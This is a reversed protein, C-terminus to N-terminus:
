SLKFIGYNAEDKVADIMEESDIIKKLPKIARNEKLEIMLNILAIQVVPKDQVSLSHILAARVKEEDALTALAQLAAM